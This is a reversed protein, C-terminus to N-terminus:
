DLQLRSGAASLPFSASSFDFRLDSCRNGAASARLTRTRLRPAWAHLLLSGEEWHPFCSRRLHLFPGARHLSVGAVVAAATDM